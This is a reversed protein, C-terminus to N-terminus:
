AAASQSGVCGGTRSDYAHLYSWVYVPEGTIRVDTIHGLRIFEESPRVPLWCRECLPPTVQNM